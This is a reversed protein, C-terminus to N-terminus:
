GLVLASNGGPAQTVKVINELAQQLNASNINENQIDRGQFKEEGLHISTAGGPPQHVILSKPRKGVLISEGVAPAESEDGLSISSNGGPAQHVRTTPRDTLVNGSNANSGSAFRNSSVGPTPTFSHDELNIRSAAAAANMTRMPKAPTHASDNAFSISDVGGIATSAAKDVSKSVAENCGVGVVGSCASWECTDAGLVLSTSGGVAPRSLLADISVIEHGQGMVISDVGGPPPRSTGIEEAVVNNFVSQSYTQGSTVWDATTSGLVVTDNGGPSPRKLLDDSCFASEHVKGFDVSDTGGVAPRSLLTEATPLEAKAGFDVSDVGGPVQRPYTEAVYGTPIKNANSSTQWDSADGGLVVTTKGGAGASTTPRLPLEVAESLCNVSDIGGPPM